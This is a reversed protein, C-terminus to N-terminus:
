KRLMHINVLDFNLSILYRLCDFLIWLKIKQKLFM